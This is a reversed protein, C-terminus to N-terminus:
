RGRGGGVSASLGQTGRGRSWASKEDRRMGRTQRHPLSGPRKVARTPRPSSPQLNPRATPGTDNSSCSSLSPPPSDHRSPSRHKRALARPRTGSHHHNGPCLLHTKMAPTEQGHSHTGRRRLTRQCNCAYAICPSGINQSGGVALQSEVDRRVLNLM